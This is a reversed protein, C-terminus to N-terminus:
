RSRIATGGLQEFLAVHDLEFYHKGQEDQLAAGLVGSWRAPGTPAASAPRLRKLVPQGSVLLAGVYHGTGLVVADRDAVDTSVQAWALPDFLSVIRGRRNILGILHAPAGPVPASLGGPVYDAAIGPMLAVWLDRGDLCFAIRLAQEAIETM